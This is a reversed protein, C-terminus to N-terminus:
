NKNLSLSDALGCNPHKYLSPRTGDDLRLLSISDNKIELVKFEVTSLALLSDKESYSWEKIEKKGEFKVTEMKSGWYFTRYTYNEYFQMYSLFRYPGSARHPQYVWCGTIFRRELETKNECSSISFILTIIFITFKFNKM